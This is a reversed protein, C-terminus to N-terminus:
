LFDEDLSTNTHIYIDVTIKQNNNWQYNVKHQNLQNYLLIRCDM